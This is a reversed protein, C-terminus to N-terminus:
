RLRSHQPGCHCDLLAYVVNVTEPLKDTFTVVIRMIFENLSLNDFHRRWPSLVARYGAPYVIKKPAKIRLM